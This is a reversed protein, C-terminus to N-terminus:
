AIIAYDKEREQWLREVLKQFESEYVGFIASFFTHTYPCLMDIREGIGTNIYWTCSKCTFGSWGKKCVDELCGQYNDCDMSRHIEVQEIDVLEQYETPGM